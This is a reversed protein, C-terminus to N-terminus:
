YVEDAERALRYVHYRRANKTITAIHKLAGTKFPHKYAQIKPQPGRLDVIYLWYDVGRRECDEAYEKESNTYVVISGVRPDLHKWTKVEVIRHERPEVPSRRVLLLDYAWGRDHVDQIEFDRSLKRKLAEVAEREVKFKRVDYEGVIADLLKLVDGGVGGGGGYRISALLEAHLGYDGVGRPSWDSHSSSLGRAEVGRIYELFEKSAMGAINSAIMRARLRVKLEVGEDRSCETAELGGSRITNAIIKLLKPGRITEPSGGPLVGIGVLESYVPTGELEVTVKALHLEEYGTESSSTLCLPTRVGGRSYGGAISALIKYIDSPSSAVYPGAYIKGERREVNYGLLEAVAALMGELSEWAEVGRFGGTEEVLKDVAISHARRTLGSKELAMRLSSIAAVISNVYSLLGDRGYRLYAVLAKYESFGPGGSEPAPAPVVISEDRSRMDIEVDEGLPVKTVNLARGLALLKKYLIDVVDRDIDVALLLTYATVDREQGLRWVRGIRQEIKVPSWSPEYNVLVSAVQLNLGESAVDTSIVVKVRGMRLYRKLDEISPRRPEAWGPLRVEESTVLAVSDWYEPLLERLRGYVYTATDKYETFVVVRKGRGLRERLIGVLAKLRSDGEKVISRALEVLRRLDELDRESLLVGCKSAFEGVVEDPERLEDLGYDEFGVGLYSEVISEAERDLEEMSAVMRAKRELVRELTLMASYPSSSARKAIITLLLPLAKPSDGLEVHLEQFKRRLFSLLKEYFEEEVRSAAIIRAIFRCGKFVERKEYVDNVDLKTRRFVISNLTLRYFEDTNLLGLDDSLYPDVLRLRELYDDEYGRHPTASLLILNVDSREALRRVLQYRQTQRGRTVSARHAEDVVVTDWSVSAIRDLYQQRKALDISAVYWGEPLSAQLRALDRGELVRANVNFRRLESVWQDVLIRPVLVLIRRAGWREALSLAIHIAEVTKGLGIEDGVLIRVPRRFGAKLLLEVQHIFPHVPPDGSFRLVMFYPHHAYADLVVRILDAVLGV